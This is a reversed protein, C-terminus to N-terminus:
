SRWWSRLAPGRCHFCSLLTLALEKRNETKCTISADRAASAQLGVVPDGFRKGSLYTVWVPKATSQMCSVSGVDLDSRFSVVNCHVLLVLPNSSRVTFESFESVDDACAQCLASLSSADRGRVFM